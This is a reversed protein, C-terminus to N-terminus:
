QQRKNRDAVVAQACLLEIDRISAQPKLLDDSSWTVTDGNHFQTQVMSRVAGLWDGGERMVSDITHHTDDAHVLGVKRLQGKSLQELTLDPPLGLAKINKDKLIDQLAEALQQMYQRQIGHFILVGGDEIELKGMAEIVSDTDLKNCGCDSM